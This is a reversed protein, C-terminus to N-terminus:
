KKAIVVLFFGRVCTFMNRVFGKEVNSYAHIAKTSKHSITMKTWRKKKKQKYIRFLSRLPKCSVLATLWMCWWPSWSEPCVRCPATSCSCTLIACFECSIPSNRLTYSSFSLPTQVTELFGSLYHNPLLVPIFLLEPTGPTNKEGVLISKSKAEQCM